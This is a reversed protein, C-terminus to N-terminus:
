WLINWSYRSSTYEDINDHKHRQRYLRRRTTDKTLLYDQYNIDGFHIMRHKKGPESIIVYYKHKGDMSYGATIVENLIGKRKQLYDIRKELKSLPVLNM